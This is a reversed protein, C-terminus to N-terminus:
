RGIVEDVESVEKGRMLALIPIPHTDDSTEDSSKIVKLNASCYIGEDAFTKENDLIREEFKLKFRERDALEMKRSQESAELFDQLVAGVKTHSTVLCQERV